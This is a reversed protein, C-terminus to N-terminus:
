QNEKEKYLIMVSNTGFSISYNVKVIEINQNSLFENVKKELTSDFMESFVKIKM